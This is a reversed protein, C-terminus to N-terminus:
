YCKVLLSRLNCQSETGLLTLAALACFTYGGHAESYPSGGFGGEYTQCKLLWDSTGEFLEQDFINTLKAVVLACYTGRVDVEGDIHLSFAGEENRCQKLFNYM